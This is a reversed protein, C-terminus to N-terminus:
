VEFGATTTATILIGHRPADASLSLDRPQSSLSFAKGSQLLRRSAAGTLKPIRAEFNPNPSRGRAAVVVAEDHRELLGSETTSIEPTLKALLQRERNWVHVRGDHSGVFFTKGDPTVATCLVVDGSEGIKKEDGGRSSQEGSHAKLDTYTFLEGGDTTAVITSGDGPWAVATIAGSHNGLGIIKERPKIDWVKIQKDAGGSVVQTANSNFAVGLVQLTHGELRALEKPSGTVPLEHDTTRSGHDLDWVKILKDGGATALQTGDRSFEIDFITDGHARWAAAIRGDSLDIVRLLGSQGAIGDALALRAGDPSFEIATVLGVLGNTWERELESSEANWLALRRYAGAALQHRGPSWALAQVAGRHAEWQKLVPFNTQSADHVVISSGRGVALMRGDPSLSLAMVPQYSAPLAALEIPACAADAETFAKEDWVLGGKIWDRIVKIQPNTLQKKPPMHPDADRLVAKALRSSDPSGTVVVEGDNGGKLIAERSTLVLGGKKKEDNHCAFCESQLLRIAERASDLSATRQPKAAGSEALCGIAVFLVGAVLVFVRSISPSLAFRAQRASPWVARRIRRTAPCRTGSKACRNVAALCSGGRDWVLNQTM